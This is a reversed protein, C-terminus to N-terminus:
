RAPARYREPRDQDIHMIHMLQNVQTNRFHIPTIVGEFASRERLYERLRAPNQVEHLSEFLYTAVDFGLHAFEDPRAGTASEFNNQFQYTARRSPETDFFTTYYIDFYRMRAPSLNVLGMQENGLIKVQSRTAQLDNLILDILQEAGSGGVALYLGDVPELEYEDTDVFREHGAFWPTIHGVEFARAEFDESFYHVITAGLREAEQRFARAERESDQGRQTIVSLNRLNLTQVAFRAMYQGRAELTPNVLFLHHNGRNLTDANALPPLVPIEYSAAKEAVRYVENSYLPGLVADAHVQWAMRTLAAEPTYLTDSTEVLHLQVSRDDNNQNFADAALVYGNYLSRAVQWESSGKEAAPLLVGIDYVMGDPAPGYRASPRVTEPMREIRRGVAQLVNNEITHSLYDYMATYLESAEAKTMHDIGYRVLDFQVRPNRSQAFAQKRQGATLYAMAQDYFRGADVDLNEFGPRSRLDFLLDLSLGFQRTRFYVLALTFRAEEYLRPDDETGLMNLYHRAMAHNGLSFHSKGAFLRAEATQIESFAAAAQEFDGERYLQMASDFRQEDPLGASPDSGPSAALFPAAALHGPAAAISVPATWSGQFIGSQATTAQLLSLPSTLILCCLLFVRQLVSRKNGNLPPRLSPVSIM